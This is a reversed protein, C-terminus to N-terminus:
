YRWVSWPTAISALPFRFLAANVSANNAPVVYGHILPLGDSWADFSYGNGAKCQQGNALALQMEYGIAQDVLYPTLVPLGEM